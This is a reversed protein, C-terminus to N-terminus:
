RILILKRVVALYARGFKLCGTYKELKMQEMEEGARLWFPSKLSRERLEASEAPLEEEWTRSARQM